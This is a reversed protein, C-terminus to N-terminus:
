LISHLQQKQKIHVEKVTDIDKNIRFTNYVNPFNHFNKDKPANEVNSEKISNDSAAKKDVTEIQEIKPQRKKHKNKLSSLGKDV